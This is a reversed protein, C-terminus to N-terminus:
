GLDGITDEHSPGDLWLGLGVLLGTAVDLSDHGQAVLRAAVSLVMPPEPPRHVLFAWQGNADHVEHGYYYRARGVRLLAYHTTITVEVHPARM